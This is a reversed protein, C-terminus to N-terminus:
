AIGASSYINELSKFKTHATTLTGSAQLDEKTVQVYKYQM